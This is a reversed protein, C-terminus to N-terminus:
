KTAGSTLGSYIFRQLFLFALLTPIIVIITCAAILEWQSGMPGKFRFLVTSLVPLDPSPMYLFPLYFENYIAIGKIIVVTAIAPRLLPLIISRYIRFRNAGDLMAAEDLSRSISGMFQIFIQIAIIDTGVFLLVMAWRTNFIGLFNIIKFTAVQTTVAPVLAATLFLAMVIKRGRFRFRDLAYAVMTGFTIAGVVALVLIVVTNGFALLIKGETVVRVYNALNLWNEPPDLPGTTAYEEATKLSAFLLTVLPITVVLVAVVLSAYKLIAAVPSAVRSTRRRHRALAGRVKDGLTVSPSVAVDPRVDQQTPASM